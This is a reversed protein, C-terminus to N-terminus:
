DQKPLKNLPNSIKSVRKKISDRIEKFDNKNIKKSVDNGKEDLLKFYLYKVEFKKFYEYSEKATKKGILFSTLAKIYAISDNKAEIVEPEKEKIEKEKFINEDEIVAIYKYEKDGYLYSFMVVSLVIGVVLLLFYSFSVGLCGKTKKIEKTRSKNNKTKQPKTNKKQEILTKKEYVSVELRCKYIDDDNINISSVNITLFKDPNKMIPIYLESMKKSLEGIQSGYPSFVKIINDSIVFKIEDWDDLRSLEKQFNTSKTVTINKPSYDEVVNGFVWEKSETVYDGLFEHIPEKFNEGKEYVEIIVVVALKIQEKTYFKKVYADIYYKNKDELYPTIEESDDEFVRGIYGIHSKLFLHSTDKQITLHEGPYLNKINDQYENYNSLSIDFSDIRKM